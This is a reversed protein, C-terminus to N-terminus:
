KSEKKNLDTKLKKIKNESGDLFEKLQKVIVQGREYKSIAEEIDIEGGQLEDLIKDLENRLLQYDIQPKNAKDTM